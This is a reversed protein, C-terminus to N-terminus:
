GAMLLCCCAVHLTVKPAIRNWVESTYGDRQVGGQTCEVEVICTMYGQECICCCALKNLVTMLGVIKEEPEKSSLVKLRSLALWSGAQCSPLCESHITTMQLDRMNWYPTLYQTHLESTSHTASM